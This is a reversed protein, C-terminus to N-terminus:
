TKRIGLKDLGTGAQLTARLPTSTNRTEQFLKDQPEWDVALIWEDQGKCKLEM